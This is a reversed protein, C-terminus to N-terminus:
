CRSDILTSKPKYISDKLSSKWPRIHDLTIYKEVHCGCPFRTELVRNGVRIFILSFGLVYWLLVWLLFFFFGSVFLSSDLGRAAQTNKVWTAEKFYIREVLNKRGWLRSEKERLDSPQTRSKKKKKKTHTYKPKYSLNLSWIKKFKTPIYIM